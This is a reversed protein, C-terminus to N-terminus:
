AYHFPTTGTWVGPSASLRQGVKAAGSVTPLSTSAPKTGTASGGTTTSTFLGDHSDTNAAPADAIGVILAGDGCSNLAMLPAYGGTYRNGYTTTDPLPPFAPPTEIYIPLMAGGLTGADIHYADTKGCLAADSRTDVSWAVDIRSGPGGAIAPHGVSNGDTGGFM